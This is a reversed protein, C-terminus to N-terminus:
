CTTYSPSKKTKRDKWSLRPGCAAMHVTRRDYRKNVKDLALSIQQTKHTDVEPKDFLSLQTQTIPM